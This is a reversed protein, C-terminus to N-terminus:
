RPSIASIWFCISNCMCISSCVCPVFLLFVLFFCVRLGYVCIGFLVLCFGVSLPLLWLGVAIFCLYCQFSLVGLLVLLCLHIACCSCCLAVVLLCFAVPCGVAFCFLSVFFCCLLEMKIEFFVFAFRLVVFLTFRFAFEVCSVCVVCAVVFAVCVVVNLVAHLVVYVM